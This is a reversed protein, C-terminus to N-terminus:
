DASELLGVAATDVCLSMDPTESSVRLHGGGGRMSLYVANAGARVPAVEAEGNEPDGPDLRRQQGPLEAPGDVTGRRRGPEPHDAVVRPARRPLRLRAAPGTRLRVPRRRPRRGPHRPASSGPSTRAQRRRWAWPPSSGHSATTPTSLGWVASGAVAHDLVPADASLLSRQATALYAREMGNDRTENYSATSWLSLGLFFVTLLVAADRRETRDLLTRTADRAPARAVLAVAIAAVLVIDPFFRLNLAFEASVGSTLRSVVLVLVNTVVYGVLLVWVVGGTQRRWSIWGAALLVAAAGVVLATPPDAWTGFDTWFLPGGVLGPLIGDTITTGVADVATTLSGSQEAPVTRPQVASGFRWVLVAGDGGPRGVAVGGPSPRGGRPPRAPSASCSSSCSSPSRRSSWRRSASASSSGSSSRAQSPTVSGDPATCPSRTAACGPSAPRCRCLASPSRGTTSRPWRSPSFLYLVLPLLLVPRDGLLLRLLRLVALSALAQLVVLAAAMPWYELPAIRTLAGTLLDALPAFRGDDAVLFESSLLPLRVSRGAVVLDNQSLVGALSVWARVLLQAMVLFAALLLVRRGRSRPRRRRPERLDPTTDPAAAVLRPAAPAEAVETM